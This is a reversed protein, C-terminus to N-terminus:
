HKPTYGDEFVSVYINVFSLRHLGHVPVKANKIIISVISKDM